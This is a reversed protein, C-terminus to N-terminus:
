IGSIKTGDPRTTEIIESIKSMYSEGKKLIHINTYGNEETIVSDDPHIAGGIPLDKKKIGNLWEADREAHKSIPEVRFKRGTKLDTVTQIGYQSM